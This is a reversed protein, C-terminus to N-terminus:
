APYCLLLFKRDACIKPGLIEQSSLYNQFLIFLMIKHWKPPFQGILFTCEMCCAQSLLFLYSILHLVKSVNSFMQKCIFSFSTPSNWFSFRKVMRKIFICGSDLRIYIISYMFAMTLKWNWRILEQRSVEM